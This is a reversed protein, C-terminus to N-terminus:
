MVYVWVSYKGTEDNEAIDAIIIKADESITDDKYKAPLYGITSIGASVEWKQKEIDYNAYCIDGVEHCIISDQMEQNTNSVLKVRSLGRREAVEILNRYFVVFLQILNEDPIRTELVSFIPEDRKLWDSVMDAIRGSQMTGIQQGDLMVTPTGEDMAFSVKSGLELTNIDLGAIPRVNVKHYEYAFQCDGMRGPAYVTKPKPTAEPAPQVPSPQPSPAPASPKPHVPAPQNQPVANAKVSKKGKGIVGLKRLGFYALVLFFLIGGLTSYEADSIFGSYAFLVALGLLLIGIMKKKM